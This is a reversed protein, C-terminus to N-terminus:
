IEAEAKVILLSDIVAELHVDLLRNLPRSVSGLLKSLNLRVQAKINLLHDVVTDIVIANPHERGCDTVTIVDKNPIGGKLLEINAKVKALFM